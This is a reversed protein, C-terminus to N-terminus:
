REGLFLFGDADVAGRRGTVLWGDRFAQETLEDGGAYGLMMSAGRLLLEGEM